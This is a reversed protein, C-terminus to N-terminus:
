EIRIPEKTALHVEGALVVDKGFTIDGEVQLKSCGRLSPAGYPFRKEFHHLIKYYRDDLDIVPVSGDATDLTVKYDDDLRYADSRVALLDSSKKVPTFRLRPVILAMSTKFMSIAAGMATEIQLVDVGEVNKPNIILPLIFQKSDMEKLNLWINNTNFFRYRNIDQFFRIEESPCQAVERLILSSETQALHGGKKDTAERTCAEMLFPLKNVAMYNLIKNDVVAGLNDANSIFAYEIGCELLLELVGSSKLAQYIDGHGPPNWNHAPNEQSEFPQYDEKRIRPYKNQTFSLPMPFETLEPYKELYNLTQRNTNFSNMFLLPVKCGSEEKLKLNQKVIIDLFNLRNKVKILSKAISLGMSTGLGGNLKIVALKDLNVPQDDSLDFYNALRDDQPPTITQEPIMGTEGEIVKKLYQLFTEIVEQNLGEEQMIRRHKEFLSSM